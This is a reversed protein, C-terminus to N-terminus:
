KRTVANAWVWVERPATGEELVARVLVAKGTWAIAEGEVQVVDTYQYTVPIVARVPVPDFADKRPGTQELVEVPLDIPQPKRDMRRILAQIGREKKAEGREFM